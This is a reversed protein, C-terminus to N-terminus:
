KILVVDMRVDHPELPIEPVLQESYCVGIKFARFGSQSMYKDYFGKGRGMRAGNATFAVGPVLMADIEGAGVPCVGQPEMIGFAGVHMANGRCSYFNMIDGEVRPLLVECQEALAEILPWIQPEDSLPAFLAVVKAGSAAIMRQAEACILESAREKSAADMAAMRERVMRRLLRKECM